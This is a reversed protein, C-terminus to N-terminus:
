AHYTSFKSGNSRGRMAVSIQSHDYSPMALDIADQRQRQEIQERDREM